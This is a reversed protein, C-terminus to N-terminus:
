KSFERYYSASIINAFVISYLLRKFLNKESKRFLMLTFPRKFFQENEYTHTHARKTASNQRVKQLGGSQLGGPGETWPIRCALISSPAAM